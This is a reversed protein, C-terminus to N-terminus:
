YIFRYLVVNYMLLSNENNCRIDAYNISDVQVTSLKSACALYINMFIIYVDIDTNNKHIRISKMGSIHCEVM